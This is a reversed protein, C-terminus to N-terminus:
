LCFLHKGSHLNMSNFTGICGRLRRDRGIHWTVFLPSSFPLLYHTKTLSIIEENKNNQISIWTWKLKTIMLKELYTSLKMQSIQRRIIMMRDISNVTCFRLAFSACKPVQLKSLAVMAMQASATIIPQMITLATRHQHAPHSAMANPMIPKLIIANNIIWEKNRQAVVVPHCKM